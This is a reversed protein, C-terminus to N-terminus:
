RRMPTNDKIGDSLQRQSANLQGMLDWARRFLRNYAEQERPTAARGQMAQLSKLSDNFEKAGLLFTNAADYVAEARIDEPKPKYFPSLYFPNGYLKQVLKLGTGTTDRVNAMTREIDARNATVIEAGHQTIVSTNTLVTDLKQRTGNFGTILAEAGPRNQSVTEHVEGVLGEVGKLTAAVAPRNETVAADLHTILENARAMTQQIRAPDISRALDEIESATAELRPRVGAVTAQVDVGTAQLAQLLDRIRPGAEDITQRVEGIVHSLHKREVAGLGVQELIPDFFNAEAGQVVAGPELPVKSRGTSVIQVMSQGTLGSEITIQADQRLRTAITEPVFLRVRAHLIGDKEVLDVATVRGSEIGAVRVPSGVRIGQGNRFVVDLMRREALFGPGGSAIAILSALGALGLLVIVGVRVERASSRSM